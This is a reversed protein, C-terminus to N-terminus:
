GCLAKFAGPLREAVDAATSGWVTLEEEAIDGALGHLHAGLSAAKFALDGASRGSALLQAWLGGILGALVDGTGAKALGPGGTANVVTRVGSSIVTRRGKLVVVGGWDRALREASKARADEIDKVEQRLLRGLEAPHPTFICPHKRTKLMEAVAAPEQQALVNLADADVVAPAHVGSLAHLIFRAADPHTSIGPGIVMVTVKRDKAFQKLRDVGDPRFVGVPNDSLPLTLASPNAAAVPAGAGFPVAATVLGAGSRLAARTALVAAGSMVRSGAVILCHGFVGKHDDEQREVVAARLETKSLPKVSM